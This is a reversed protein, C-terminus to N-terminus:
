CADDQRRGSRRLDPDDDGGAGASRAAAGALPPVLWPRGIWRARCPQRHVPSDRDATAVLDGSRGPGGLVMVVRSGDPAQLTVMPSQEDLRSEAVGMSLTLRRQFAYLDDPSDWLQGLPRRAVTPTRSGRSAIRTSTSRRSRPTTCTRSSRVPVSPRPTPPPACRQARHVRRAPRRRAAIQVPQDPRDGRGDVSGDVARTPRSGRASRGPASRRCPQIGAVDASGRRERHRRGPSGVLPGHSRPGDVRDVNM